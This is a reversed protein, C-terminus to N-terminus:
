FKNASILITNNFTNLELTNEIPSRLVTIQLILFIRWIIGGLQGPQRSRFPTRYQMKRSREKVTREKKKSGRCNLFFRERFVGRNVFGVSVPHRNLDFSPFLMEIGNEKLICFLHLFRFLKRMWLSFIIISVLKLLELKKKIKAKNAFHLYVVKAKQLTSANYVDIFKTFTCFIIKNLLYNEKLFRYINGRIKLM